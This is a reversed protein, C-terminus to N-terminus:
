YTFTDTEDCLPPDNHIAVWEADFKPDPPAELREAIEANAALTEADRRRRSEEIAARNRLATVMEPGLAMRLVDLDGGLAAALIDVSVQVHDARGHQVKWAQIHRNHGELCPPCAKEGHRLHRAYGRTTGCQAAM